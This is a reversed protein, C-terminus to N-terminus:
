SISTSNWSWYTQEMLQNAKTNWYLKKVYELTLLDYWFLFYGSSLDEEQKQIGDLLDQLSENLAALEASTKDTKTDNEDIDMIGLDNDDDYGTKNGNAVGGPPVLTPVEFCM